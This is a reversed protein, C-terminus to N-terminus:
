TFTYECKDVPDIFQICFFILTVLFTLINVRHFGAGTHDFQSVYTMQVTNLGDVLMDTPLVLRNSVWINDNKVIPKNNVLLQDIRKSIFELFLPEDKNLEDKKLQFKGTWNAVYFDCSRWVRLDLTYSVG